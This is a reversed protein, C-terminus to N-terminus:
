KIEGQQKTEEPKAPNIYSAKGKISNLMEAEGEELQINKRRVIEEIQDQIANVEINLDTILEVVKKEPIIDLNIFTHLAKIKTIMAMIRSRIQPKNIKQPITNYLTEAKQVLSKTKRQFAGITGKPKQNLESLFLRWESWNNSITQSEASLNRPTFGWAKNIANFVQEKAKTAKSTQLQQLQDDDKCASCLLLLVLSFSAIYNM